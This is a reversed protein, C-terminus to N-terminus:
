FFVFCKGMIYNEPIFGFNRSDWSNHRNDGMVFFYDNKFTYTKDESISIIEKEHRYIIEKYLEFNYRNLKIKMGKKPVIIKGYNDRSWQKKQSIYTPFILVERNGESKINRKLSNKIENGLKLYEENSYTKVEKINNEKSFNVYDYSYDDKEKLYEGNIFVKSDKITLIDNPLGIIRKVLFENNDEISKFVVIDERKYDKFPGLPMFLDYENLRGNRRFFNGIVPVEQIRKPVKVGYSIKNILVYDNPSLTKEMSSSPVFYIDFLFTRIFIAMFISVIILYSYKIINFVKISLRKKIFKVSLNTTFSDIVIILFLFLYFLKSWLYFLITLSLLVGFLFHRKQLKLNMMDFYLINKQILM